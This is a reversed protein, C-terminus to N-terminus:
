ASSTMRTRGTGGRATREPRDRDEGDGDERTASPAETPTASMTMAHEGVTIM